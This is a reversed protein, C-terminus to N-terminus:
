RARPSLPLRAAPDGLLVYGRLDNRLMFANARRRPDGEWPRHRRLATAEAEYDLLLEDNVERFSRMLADLAVGARSGRVMARLCGFIREPRGRGHRQADLYAFTWALDVHGVIALPGQPNALAALPMAALFPPEGPRPLLQHIREVRQAYADHELLEALWPEFASHSPTGAAFCAVMLWLGGPLLPGERVADAGLLRDLLSPSQAGVILAGQIARRQAPSPWRERGAALGHGLSLLVAPEPRQLAHVLEAVTRAAPLEAIEAAPFSSRAEALARCPDILLRRGHATAETGDDPTFFLLDPQTRPSPSSAWRAVKHAYAALGAPEPAHLRGVFAVSSLTHQLELSLEDLEGVLLLYRPREPEPEGRWVEERWRLAEEYGAGLPANRYQIVPAGQEAARLELLPALAELAADGAKGPAVVVAWRQEELDNPDADPADLHLEDVGRPVKTPRQALGAAAAPLPRELVPRLDLPDALLLGLPADPPSSEPM